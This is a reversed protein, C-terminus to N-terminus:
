DTAFRTCGSSQMVYHQEEPHAAISAKLSVDGPLNAQLIVDKQEGM